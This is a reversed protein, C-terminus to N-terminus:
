LGFQYSDTTTADGFLARVFNFPREGDGVIKFPVFNAVLVLWLASFAAVGPRAAFWRVPEGLVLRRPRVSSSAAGYDMAM